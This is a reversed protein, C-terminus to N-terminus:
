IAEGFDAALAKGFPFLWERRFPIAMRGAGGCEKCTYDSEMMPGHYFKEHFARIKALDKVRMGELMKVRMDFPKVDDVMSQAWRYLWNWGFTKEMDSLIIEDACTLLRVYV